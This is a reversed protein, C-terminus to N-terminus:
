FIRKRLSQLMDITMTKLTYTPKWGWEARALSDNITRPWSDAIRQREDPEYEITFEPVHKKIENALQECSFSMGTLNFVRHKMRASDAEMVQILAKICDKMYLMPLVTDKELFCKYHKRKLCDYFIEVAYDTTGGGPLTESSIIGPLRLSRVDLGFKNSYYKILLEGTVKTIGYITTPQLITENPTNNRPTSPGFAAISSPWVIKQIKNNRAIELINLLGNINLDWATQPNKEGSASLLSALHYITDVNYKKVFSDVTDYNLVDLLHFSHFKELLDKPPDKKDSAYVTEIGNLNQLAPVLESGIQGCAGIVLINKMNLYLQM